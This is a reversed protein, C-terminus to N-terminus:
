VSDVVAGVVVVDVEDVVVAAVVEVEGLEDVEFGFLVVFAVVVVAGFDGVLGIRRRDIVAGSNGTSVQCSAAKRTVIACPSLELLGEMKASKVRTMNIMNTASAPLPLAANPGM